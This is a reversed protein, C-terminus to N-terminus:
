FFKLQTMRRSSFCHYLRSIIASVMLPLPWPLFKLQLTPWYSLLYSWMSRKFQSLLKFNSQCLAAMLCPLTPSSYRLENHLHQESSCSWQTYWDNHLTKETLKHESSFIVIQDWRCLKRFKKHSFCKFHKHTVRMSKSHWSSWDGELYCGCQAQYARIMCNEQALRESCVSQCEVLSCHAPTQGM